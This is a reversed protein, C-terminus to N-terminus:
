KEYQLPVCTSRLPLRCTRAIFRMGFNFDLSGWKSERWARSGLEEVVNGRAEGVKNVVALEAVLLERESEGEGERARLLAEGLAPQDLPRLAEAAGPDLALVDTLQQPVGQGPELALLM